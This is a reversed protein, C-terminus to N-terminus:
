RANKQPNFYSRNSCIGLCKHLWRLEARLKGLTQTVENKETDTVESISEFFTFQHGPMLSDISVIQEKIKNRESKIKRKLESLTKCSCYPAQGIMALFKKGDQYQRTVRKSPYINELKWLESDIETRLKKVSMNGNRLDRM